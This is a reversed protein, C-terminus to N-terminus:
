QKLQPAQQQTTKPKIPQQRYKTVDRDLAERTYSGSPKQEPGKLKDDLFQTMKTYLHFRTNGGYIGHNRNPYFYTDYQKDALRLLLQHRLLLEHVQSGTCRQPAGTDCRVSGRHYQAHDKHVEAIPVGNM